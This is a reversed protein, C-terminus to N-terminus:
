VPHGLLEGPLRDAIIYSLVEGPGRDGPLQLDPEFQRLAEVFEPLHEPKVRHTLLTGRM